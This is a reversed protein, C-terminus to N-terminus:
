GVVYIGFGDMDRCELVAIIAMTEFVVIGDHIAELGFSVAHVELDKVVFGTEFVAAGDNIFPVAGELEDRRIDVAAVDSFTGDAGEFGVEKCNKSANGVVKGVEEPVM